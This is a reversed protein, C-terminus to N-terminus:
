IDEWEIKILPCRVVLLQRRREPAGSGICTLPIIGRVQWLLRRITAAVEPQSQGCPFGSTPVVVCVPQSSDLPHSSQTSPDPQDAQCGQTQQRKKGCRHRSLLAADQPLERRAAADLAEAILHTTYGLGCGLDVAADPRAAGRAHLFARTSEAYVEAVLRLRKAAVDTDGFLYSAM